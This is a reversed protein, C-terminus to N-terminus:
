TIVNCTIQPSLPRFDHDKRVVVSLYCLYSAPFGMRVHVLLPFPNNIRYSCEMIPALDITLMGTYFVIHDLNVRLLRFFGGRRNRHRKFLCRGILREPNCYGSKNKSSTLVAGDYNWPRIATNRWNPKRRRM